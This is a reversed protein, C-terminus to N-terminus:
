IYKWIYGGATQNNKNPNACSLINSWGLGLERAADSGSPWIRILEGELTYQGIRKCTKLRREESQKRGSLTKSIKERTEQSVQRGKLSNSLNRKHEETFKKGKTRQNGILVASLHERTITNLSNEQHTCWRLNSVKNNTKDTDIHDVCPLNNPNPLFALAVLRHITFTRKKLHEGPITLVISEYGGRVQTRMNGGYITRTTPGYRNKTLTIRPVSRVRGMNSVEYRGKIGDVPIEKWIEEAM